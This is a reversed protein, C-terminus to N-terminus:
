TGRWSSTHPLPRIVGGNKVEASCASSHDAESESWKVTPFSGEIGVPYPVPHVGSGTQVSCLLSFNRAGRPFRVGATWSTVRRKLSQAEIPFKQLILRRVTASLHERTHRFHLILLNFTTTITDMSQMSFIRRETTCTYSIHYEKFNYETEYTNIRRVERM